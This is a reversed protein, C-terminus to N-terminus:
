LPSSADQEVGGKAALVAAIGSFFASIRDAQWGAFETMSVRVSVNFQIMGETPQSFSTAVASRAVDREKRDAHAAQPPRPDEAVAPQAQAEARPTGRRVIGGEVEVIGAVALYDLLLSLQAQYTKNVGAQGALISMVEDVPQPKFQLHPLLATGFWSEALPGALKSAASEPSWEFATNFDVTPQTPVYGNEAKQLLGVDAFFSNALSVTDSSMKAVAGVENNTVVRRAPGSLSAWARLLDLQKPFAIRNTPLPHKPRVRGQVNAATQVTTPAPTSEAESVVTLGPTEM